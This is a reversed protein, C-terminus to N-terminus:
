RETVYRRIDREAYRGRSDSILAPSRFLVTKTPAAASWPNFSAIWQYHGVKVYPTVEPYNYGVPGQYDVVQTGDRWVAVSPGASGDPSIRARIVFYTWRDTPTDASQWLVRTTTTAMSPPYVGNSKSDIKLTRDRLSLALFPGLPITGNGWHWQMLIQEDPTFTWDQLRVGFAFWFDKGVPLKGDFSPSFTLECRPAGAVFPDNVNARFMLVKRGPADPDDTKGFRMTGLGPGLDSGQLGLEPIEVAGKAQGGCEASWLWNYDRFKRAPDVQLRVDEALVLKFEATALPVADIAAVATDPLAPAQAIAGADTAAAAAAPALGAVVAETTPVEEGGGGCAAMLACFTFSLVSAAPRLTPLALRPAFPTRTM